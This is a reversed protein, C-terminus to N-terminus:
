RHRIDTHFRYKRMKMAMPIFAPCIWMTLARMRNKKSTPVKFCILANKRTVRLCKKYMEPYAKKVKALVIMDYFDSHTRWNAFDWAKSVKMSRIILNQKVVQLAWLGCECKEITFKTMASTPNDRRYYYTKLNGAVVIKAKQFAAVNFNFGEGIFLEPLFRIGNLLDRRFLKCYCGIPVRYCLIAEVADEGTWIRINQTKVQKKDYNGFMKTTLAIEAKNNIALDLLYEVYDPMIFDDGDVFCIYDGTSADIGTNRAASVGANQKHIARIRKDHKAFRDCIIGSTDSSGDNILIIELNTHKQKQISEICKTLFKDVNYIPVIVSVKINKNMNM